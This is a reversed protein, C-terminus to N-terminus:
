GHWHTTAIKMKITTQREKVVLLAVKQTGPTNISNRKAFFRNFGNEM